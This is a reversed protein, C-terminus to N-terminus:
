CAQGRRVLAVSWDTGASGPGDTGPLKRVTRVVWPPPGYRAEATSKANRDRISTAERARAVTRRLSPDPVGEGPYGCCCRCNRRNWRIGDTRERTPLLAKYRFLMVSRPKLDNAEAVVIFKSGPIVQMTPGFPEPLDM